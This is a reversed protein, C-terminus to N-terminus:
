AHDAVETIKDQMRFMKKGHDMGLLHLMGHIVLRMMEAKLTVGYKKANAKAVEPCIIVDGLFGSENINFSLVDTPKDKKRYARNLRKMVGKKVFSVGVLWKKKSVLRASRKIM